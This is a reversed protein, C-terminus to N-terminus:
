KILSHILGGTVLCLSAVTALVGWSQAVGAGRSEIATQRDKLDNIRDTLADIQKSIVAASKSISLEFTENQKEVTRLAADVAEKITAADQAVRVDRDTLQSAIFRFKEKHLRTIGRLRSELVAIRAVSM